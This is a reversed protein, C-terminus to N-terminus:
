RKKCSTFRLHAYTAAMVFFLLFPDLLIYQSLTLVGTDSVSKM